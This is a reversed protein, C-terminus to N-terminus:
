DLNDITLPPLADAPQFGLIRAYFGLESELATRITAAQRFGHGEGPFALYAVPLGKRRLIDVMQESQQPPVVRDDLGQFFIVPCDIRDAHRAPSRAAFIAEKDGNLGLLWHDYHSEFKHTHEFM